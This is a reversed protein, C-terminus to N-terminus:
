EETDGPASPTAGANYSITLKAVSGRPDVLQWALVKDAACDAWTDPIPQATSAFGVSQVKGRTGVYLTIMVSAPDTGAAEACATLEDTHSGVAQAAQAEDWWQSQGRASFELPVSFDADGGRPAAFTMQRAVELLCKEVPWAGLDSTAVQASKLVGDGGIEWKLDVKGGLWRRKGVRSKYCAELAAAHPAIGAEVQAPDMKGRTSILEVGDDPEEDEWTTHASTKPKQPAPASSGCAALVLILWTTTSTTTFTSPSPLAADGNVDVNMTEEAM